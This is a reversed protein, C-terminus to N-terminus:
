ARELKPAPTSTENKARIALIFNQSYRCWDPEAPNSYPGSLEDVNYIMFGDLATGWLDNILARVVNIIEVARSNRAARVDISIQPQDTVIDRRAGGTRIVTVSEVKAQPYRDSVEVDPFGNDPLATALFDILLKEADPDILM